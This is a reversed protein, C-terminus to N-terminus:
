KAAEQRLRHLPAVLALLETTVHPAFAPGFQEVLEAAVRGAEGDLRLRVVLESELAASPPTDEVCTGAEDTGAEAPISRTM